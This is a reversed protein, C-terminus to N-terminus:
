TMSHLHPTPVNYPPTGTHSRSQPHHPPHCIRHKRRESLVMSVSAETLLGGTRLPSSRTPLSNSSCAGVGLITAKTWFLIDNVHEVFHQGTDVGGVMVSVWGYICRGM